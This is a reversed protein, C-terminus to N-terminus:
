RWIFYTTNSFFACDLEYSYNQLCFTFESGYGFCMRAGWVYVNSLETNM